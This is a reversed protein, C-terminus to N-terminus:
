SCRRNPKNAEIADRSSDKFSMGRFAPEGDVSSYGVLANINKAKLYAKTDRAAAKVFALPVL